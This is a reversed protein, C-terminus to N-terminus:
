TKSRVANAARALYPPETPHAFAYGMSPPGVYLWATGDYSQRPAAAARVNLVSHHAQSWM